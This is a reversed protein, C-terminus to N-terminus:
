TAIGNLLNGSGIRMLGPAGAPSGGGAIDRLELLFDLGLKDDELEVAGTDTDAGGLQEDTHRGISRLIEHTSEVGEGYVQAREGLPEGGAPDLGDHHLGSSNIPEWNEMEQFGFAELGTQHVAALHLVHGAALRAHKVGRTQLVYM